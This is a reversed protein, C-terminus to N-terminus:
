VLRIYGSQCNAQSYQIYVVFIIVINCFVIVYTLNLHGSPRICVPLWFIFNM